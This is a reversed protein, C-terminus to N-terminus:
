NWLRQRQKWVWKDATSSLAAPNALLARRRAFHGAESRARFAELRAIDRPIQLRQRWRPWALRTMARQAWLRAEQSFSDTAAGNMNLAWAATLGEIATRQERTKLAGMLVESANRVSTKQDLMTLDLIDKFVIRDTAVNRNHLQAHVLAHAIRHEPAPLACNTDLRSPAANAMIAGAPLGFDDHNFLRTHLEVSFTGCRSILPPFHAEREPDYDASAPSFGLASLKGISTELQGAPVLLDIDSMFRWPAPTASEDDLLFAAGKLAVPTIGRNNLAASITKVAERLDTNRAANAQHILALFDTVDGDPTNSPDGGAVNALEALPTHLAQLVFHGSALAILRQWAKESAPLDLRPQGASAYRKLLSLLCEVTEHKAM